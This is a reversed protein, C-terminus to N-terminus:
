SRGFRDMSADHIAKKMDEGKDVRARAFDVIL